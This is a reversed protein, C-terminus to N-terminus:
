KIERNRTTTKKEKKKARTPKGIKGITTIKHMRKVKERESRIKRKRANMPLFERNTNNAQTWQEHDVCTHIANHKTSPTKSYKPLVRIIKTNNKQKRKCGNLTYQLLILEKLQNRRQSLAISCNSKMILLRENLVSAKVAKRQSEATQTSGSCIICISSSAIRISQFFILCGGSIYQFQLSNFFFCM